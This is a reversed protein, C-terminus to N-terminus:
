VIRPAKVFAYLGRVVAVILVCLVKIVGLIGEQQGKTMLGEGVRARVVM